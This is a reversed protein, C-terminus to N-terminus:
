QFGSASVAKVPVGNNSLVRNVTNKVLYISNSHEM